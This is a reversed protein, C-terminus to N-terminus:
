WDSGFEEDSDSDWNNRKRAFTIKPAQEKSEGQSLFRVLEAESVRDRLRGSQAMNILMEEVARAKEPKVIAVRQLRAYAEPALISRLMETRRTRMEEQQRAQEEAKRREEEPNRDPVAQQQQEAM